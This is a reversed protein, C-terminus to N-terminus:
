RRRVVAELHREIRAAFDTGSWHALVHARGRAGLKRALPADTVLRELAHAFAEEDRPVLLGTEGDVVTELVGGEGVAVVPTECAQAELPAYGLPERHPSYVLARARRYAAVLEEEAVRLRLRLDVGLRCALEELYCRELEVARDAVVELPPRRGPPMRALSRVLFDHGKAPEIAGVSLVQPARPGDSPSFHEVDVEPYEVETEVGYTERVRERTYRSNVVVRAARALAARDLARVRRRYPAYFLAGLLRRRAPRYPRPVEPEHVYRFVEHMLFVVPTRLHLLAAPTYFVRCPNALVVDFGARDIAAAVERYTAELHRRRRGYALLKQTAALLGPGVPPAPAGPFVRVAAVAAEPALFEREAGEPIFLEFHHRTALGRLIM